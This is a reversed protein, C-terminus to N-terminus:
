EMKGFRFEKYKNLRVIQETVKGQSNRKFEVRLNFKKQLFVSDNLPYLLSTDGPGRANLHDGENTITVTTGNGEYKGAFQQLIEPGLSTVKDDEDPFAAEDSDFMSLTINRQNNKTEISHCEGNRIDKAFNTISEALYDGSFGYAHGAEKTYYFQYCGNNNKFRRAIDKSGMLLQQTAKPHSVLEFPIEDDDVSHFLLAPTAQMDDRSIFSTDAIGGWMGIVGKVRIKDTFDDGSNDLPGLSTHLPAVVDWDNQSVYATFLSAVAGASEGGVIILSTDIHYRAANHVLYRIAALQDQQARYVAKSIEAKYNQFSLDFGTRYELNAVVFEKKAVRECFPIDPGKISSEMFRGGHMFVILPFKTGKSPYVIDLKLEKIENRFNVARGYVIDKEINTQQSFASCCSTLLFFHLFYKMTLFFKFQYQKLLPVM